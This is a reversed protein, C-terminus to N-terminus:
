FVIIWLDYVEAGRCSNGSLIELDQLQLASLLSGVIGVYTNM